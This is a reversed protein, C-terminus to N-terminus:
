SSVHPFSCAARSHGKHHFPQAMRSSGGHTKGPTNGKKLAQQKEKLEQDTTVKEPTIFNNSENEEYPIFAQSFVYQDQDVPQSGPFHVDM